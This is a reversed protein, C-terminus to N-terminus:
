KSKKINIYRNKEVQIRPLRINLVGNILSAEVNDMDIQGELEIARQISYLREHINYADDESTQSREAQIQLLNDEDLFIKIDEETFGPLEAEIFYEKESETLNLRMVPETTKKTDNLRDQIAAITWVKSEDPDTDWPRRPIWPWPDIRGDLKRIVGVQMNEENEEENPMLVDKTTYKRVIHSTRLKDYDSSKEFASGDDLLDNRTIRGLNIHM